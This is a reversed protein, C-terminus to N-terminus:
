HDGGGFPDHEWDGETGPTVPVVDQHAMFLVPKKGSKGSGQWRFLMTYGGIMTLELKEHTLPYTERLYKRFARM